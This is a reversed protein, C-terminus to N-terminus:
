YWDFGLYIATFKSESPEGSYSQRSHDLTLTLNFSQGLWFAYGIGVLVGSGEVSESFGDIDATMSALGAGLRTFLGEENPFHTWMFLTNNISITGTIGLVTGSQSLSTIDLGILNKSDITGGVKFYSSVKPGKDTGALWDNFTLEEGYLQYSEGFGSGFGFGIYWSDRVHEGAFATSSMFFTLTSLLVFLVIIVRKM